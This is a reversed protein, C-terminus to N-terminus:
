NYAAPLMVVFRAGKTHDGQIRDEVWVRGGYSDVLSKVLYLGLGMGKAKATGKLARNFIKAKFDDPIGPGDDEVAVRCYRGGNDEVVDLDVVIAARDGTHKIANGVLNSFVDHLLENARVHCREFGNLSLTITKDPVAGFERQVDSLVQCVDVDRDQFMGDHLKQLKRVNSILKASRQLVEVPKDLFMAQEEGAPMDRALELYGLAVQHLNNIDHGMLDLYLEAQQKAANLEEEARKRETIDNGVSLIEVVNGHEDHIAKNTWAIWVRDGNKCMNENVNLKYREPYRKVDEIMDDLDRGTSESLPVITGVVNRGLIENKSYGFLMEAFENFFTLNGQMDWRIIISNANEVLERYKEESERLADEARKREEIRAQLEKNAKELEATRKQVAIELGEQARFLEEEAQKRETIDINIGILKLPKGSEDKFVFARGYLWHVTGDPWVVRWEGEFGGKDMAEQVRRLAEPRDEHYVLQEWAEETGPFGGLPLGYMAELEPTWTNVGTQINWEFTGIHAVQQALRLREESERLAKEALKRVEVQGKLEENAKQLELTKERICADQENCVKNLRAVLSARELASAIQNSVVHMLEIEDQAFQNRNRTGFSLTGILKDHAILPHCCYATIGLSKILDTRPDASCQVDEAIIRKKDRAVCGCVAQGYDLWEIERAIHEPVGAYNYLRLRSGDEIVLYNFYAELGLHASLRKFVVDLIERPNDSLLLSSALDSLLQVRENLKDQQGTESERAM